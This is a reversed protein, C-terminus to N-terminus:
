LEEAMMNLAVARGLAYSIDEYARGFGEFLGRNLAQGSETDSFTIYADLEGAELPSYALLLFASLWETTDETMEELDSTADALMEAESMEIVDGDSLGRLFQFNSNAASTVNRTIMDGSAIYADIQRLRDDEGTARRDRVTERAAEEVDTNQIAVRASNELDIVRTGLPTAYFAIADEIADADMTEELARRVHEVMLGPAYIAEAQLQWGAGGQGGLMDENLTQAHDLGEQALISAAEELRLVDVLVSMRADAWALGASLVWACPVLGWASRM